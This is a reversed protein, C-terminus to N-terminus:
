RYRSKILHNILLVLGTCGCLVADWVMLYMFWEPIENHIGFTGLVILLTLISIGAFILSVVFTVRLTKM